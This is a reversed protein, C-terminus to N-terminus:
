GSQTLKWLTTASGNVGETTGYLNGATDEIVGGYPTNGDSGGQFTYLVTYQGSASVEFVTGCGAPFDCNENGGGAATGFLNGAQDRLLAAEPLSGDPFGDLTHLLDFTLAQARLPQSGLLALGLAFALAWGSSIFKGTMAFGM